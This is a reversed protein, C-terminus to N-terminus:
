GSIKKAILENTMSISAVNGEIQLQNEGAVLRLFKYNSNGLRNLGTSSSLTEYMPSITLVENGSLGTYSVVRNDDNLNTISVDGDTNNMTITMSTPYLYNGTDDSGNYYIETSDVIETTYTYTTTKPFKFAFPSNCVVNCTFGQILGGVRVVEPDQLVSYFVVDQIDPQDIQFAKYSRSSFLWKSILEFGSADIEDESFASFSFELNPSPTMGYLYPTARRFIKQEKIDMSSSAMSNNIANADIDSIYLNYTESPIGDYIFSRGYFGM